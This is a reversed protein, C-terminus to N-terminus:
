LSSWKMITCMKSYNMKVTEQEIIHDCFEISRQLFIYKSSKTYLKTDSLCQLVNWIHKIHKSHLHLYVLINNLYVIVFNNLCLWLINNMIVQFTVSVNSLDFSMYYFEYKEARINFVTKLCNKKVVEIQWYESTLDIKSFYTATEIMDLCNQIKSLSYDNQVTVSNLVWYDICMRWTEDKKKAFLVSARWSSTSSQILERKLLYEIQHWQENLQKKFLSYSLKNIFHTDETEIAHDQSRKLFSKNLLNM